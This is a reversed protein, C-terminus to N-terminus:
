PEHVTLIGVAVGRPDDDAHLEIPFQGSREAVFDLVVEEGARVAAAPLEEDYGHVHFVGDVQSMVTLRVTQGRCVSPDAPTLADAELVLELQISPAACLEDDPSTDEVCAVVGVSLLTLLAAIRRM